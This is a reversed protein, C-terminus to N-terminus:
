HIESLKSMEWLSQSPTEPRGTRHTRHIPGTTDPTALLTLITLKWLSQIPTEDFNGFYRTKIPKEHIKRTKDSNWPGYPKTLTKSVTQRFLPWFSFASFASFHQFHRLFVTFGPFLPVRVWVVPLWGSGYWPYWWGPASSGPRVTGHTCRTESAPCREGPKMQICHGAWVVLSTLVSVKKKVVKRGTLVSLKGLDSRLLSGFKAIKDFVAM